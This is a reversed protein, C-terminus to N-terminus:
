CRVFLLLHNPLLKSVFRFCARIYCVWPLHLTKGLREQNRWLERIYDVVRGFRRSARGYREWVEGKFCLISYSLQLTM